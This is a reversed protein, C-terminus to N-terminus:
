GGAFILYLVFGVVAIIGIVIMANKSALPSKKQIAGLVAKILTVDADTDDKRKKVKNYDLNSVPKRDIERIIYWAYKKYRYVAKPNIQHAKNRIVVTDGGIVKMLLWRVQYKKTLYQILVYGDKKQEQKMLRRARSPLKFKKRKSVTKEVKKIREDLNELRSM